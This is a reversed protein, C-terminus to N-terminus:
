KIRRNIQNLFKRKANKANIAKTYICKPNLVVKRHKVPKGNYDMVIEDHEEVMEMILTSLNLSWFHMGPKILGQGIHTLEQKQNAQIITEPKVKGSPILPDM